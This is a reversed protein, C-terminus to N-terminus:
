KDNYRVSYKKLIAKIEQICKDRNAVTRFQYFKHITNGDGMAGLTVSMLIQKQLEQWETWAAVPDLPYQEYLARSPYVVPVGTSEFRGDPIHTLPLPSKASYVSELLCLSFRKARM